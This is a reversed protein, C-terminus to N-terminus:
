RRVSAENNLRAQTMAGELQRLREDRKGPQLEAAARYDALAANLDGFYREHLFGSLMRANAAVEKRDGAKQEATRLNAIARRAAVSAPGPEGKGALELALRGLRHGVALHWLASGQEHRLGTGIAEIAAQEDGAALREGAALYGGRRVVARVASDRRPSSTHGTSADAPRAAPSVGPVEGPGANLELSEIAWPTRAGAALVVPVGGTAAATPVQFDAGEVQVRAVRAALDVVMEVTLAKVARGDAGLQVPVPLPLAQDGLLVVGGGRGDRVFFLSAPGIEVSAWDAATSGFYPRSVIRVSVHGASLERSLESGAPLITVGETGDVPAAGAVDWEAIVAQANTPSGASGLSLAQVIALLLGIRVLRRGALANTTQQSSTM